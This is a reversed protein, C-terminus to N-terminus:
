WGQLHDAGLATLKTAAKTTTWQWPKPLAANSTAAILAFAALALALTARLM